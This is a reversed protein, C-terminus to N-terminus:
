YCQIDFERMGYSFHAVRYILERGLINDPFLHHSFHVVLHLFIRCVIWHVHVLTYLHPINLLM